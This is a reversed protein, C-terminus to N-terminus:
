ESVYRNLFREESEASGILILRAGAPLVTTPEPNVRMGEADEVAILSCGTSRRIDSEALTRGALSPPTDVKLVGLGEALLLINSRRLLRGHDM